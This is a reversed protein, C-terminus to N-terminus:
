GTNSLPNSVIWAAASISAFRTRWHEQKLLFPGSSRVSNYLHLVFHVLIASQSPTIAKFVPLMVDDCPAATDIAHEVAHQM